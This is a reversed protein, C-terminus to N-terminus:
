AARRRRLALLGVGMLLMLGSTPEPVAQWQGNTTSYSNISMWDSYSNSASIYQTMTTINFYDRAVLDGGNATTYLEIWFSYGASAYDSPLEAAIKAGSFQDSAIVQAISDGIFNNAVQPDIGDKQYKILAYDWSYSHGDTAGVPNDSVTWLLVDASATLSMALAALAAMIRTRM